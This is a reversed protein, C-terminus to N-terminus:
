FDQMPITPCFAQTQVGQGLGLVDMEFVRVEALDFGAADGESLLRALRAVIPMHCVVIVCEYGDDIMAELAKFGLKPDDDPTVAECIAHEGQYDIGKAIVSATQYARNYPSSILLDVQTNKLYNKLFEGTQEAQATGLKSLNREHDPTTYAGADGHRVLILKM